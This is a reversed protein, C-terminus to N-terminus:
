PTILRYFRRLYNTADADIFQFYGNTDAVNTAVPVWGVGPGQNPSSVLIYTQGAVASGGLLMTGDSQKTIHSIVPPDAFVDWVHASDLAVRYIRVDDVRGPFWYSGAGETAGAGIRLPFTDNLQIAVNTTAALSGNTYFCATSGDYTAALHIWTNTVVFGATLANWASGNGTWFQWRNNM